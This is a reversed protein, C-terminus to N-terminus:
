FPRKFVVDYIVMGELGKPSKPVVAVLEWGASGELGWVQAAYDDLTRSSVVKYQWMKRDLLKDLLPNDQADLKSFFVAALVIAAGILHSSNIKM